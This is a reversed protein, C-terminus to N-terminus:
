DDSDPPQSTKLLLRLDARSVTVTPTEQPPADYAQKLRELAARTDADV